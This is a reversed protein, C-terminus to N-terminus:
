EKPMVYYIQDSVMGKGEAVIQDEMRMKILKAANRRKEPGHVPVCSIM